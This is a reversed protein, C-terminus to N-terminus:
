CVDFHWFFFLKQQMTVGFKEGEVVTKITEFFLKQGLRSSRSFFNSKAMEMVRKQGGVAAYGFDVFFNFQSKLGMKWIIM